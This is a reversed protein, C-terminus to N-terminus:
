RAMCPKGPDFKWDKILYRMAMADNREGCPLTKYLRHAAEVKDMDVEIGLGPRDPIQVRGERIVLPDMALQQGDQWIWHTDMAHIDGPVSAAVHTFIALSVDFHSNSHSGWALGWEYCLQAVRSAGEMTWFHPDALPIDIANLVIAHHLQRWDTAIMNTAVPINTARKFESMVERSSYGKEPGCPDEIYTLFPKMELGHRVAQDLSWAGNPDINIRADPFAGALQRVTEVEVEPEMVGGKLKFDKFGYYEKAAVAQEVISEPTLFPKRRIKFWPNSLGTETQPYPLDTRASDAAYFLYGLILVSDRQKGSGLLSAIPLDMFQGLLDLLACEIATESRVVYMLNKLNMEQIGDHETRGPRLSALIARYDGINRGVVKPVFSELAETIPKGGHVEGAGTNGASDRLIVLNRTFWPSHAGSISLLMSDYGAVPVVRMDVVKPTPSAM